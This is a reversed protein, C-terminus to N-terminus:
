RFQLVERVEARRDDTATLISRAGMGSRRLPSTVGVFLNRGQALGARLSVFLEEVGGFSGHEPEGIQQRGIRSVDIIGVEIGKALMEIFLLHDFQYESKRGGAPGVPDGVPQPSWQWASPERAVLQM